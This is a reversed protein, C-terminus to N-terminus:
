VSERRLLPDVHRPPVPPPSKTKPGGPGGPWIGSSCMRAIVGYVSQDAWSDEISENRAVESGPSLLNRLRYLKDSSRVLVGYEGFAHINGPGYDHQKRDFLAIDTLVIKIFEMTLPETCGLAHFIDEPTVPQSM